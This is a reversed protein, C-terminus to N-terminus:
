IFIVMSIAAFAYDLIELDKPLYKLRFSSSVAIDLYGQIIFRLYVSWEYGIIVKSLLNRFKGERKKFILHTLKLLIYFAINTFLITLIDGINLLYISTEYEMEKYRDPILDSQSQLFLEFINPIMNLSMGKAITILRSPIDINLLPSFSIIQLTSLIV